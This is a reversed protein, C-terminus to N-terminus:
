AMYMPGHLTAEGQLPGLVPIFKCTTALNHVEQLLKKTHRADKLVRCEVGHTAFSPTPLM